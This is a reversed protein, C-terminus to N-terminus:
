LHFRELCISFLRFLIKVTQPWELHKPAASKRCIKVHGNFYIQLRFPCWTPVRVYCLGLDDDIFYFYYHLCKGDTYKLYTQHTKKNHWPKYSPCPEMASFIHVLGSHDGNKKLIEHIRKEKRFNNRRIFEIELDNEKAIKEANERLENRLPEAFSPYDFIRISNAKLFSTMGEIYCFWPLTGQIIVRDYCSYTGAIQHAYRDILLV